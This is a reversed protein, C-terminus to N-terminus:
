ASKKATTKEYLQQSLHTNITEILVKKAVPKTLHATVGCKFSREIHSKVADATLAIIATPPRGERQEYERIALTADYGNMIPMQMDMLVVDFHSQKFRELAAMGDKVVELHVQKSKLYVKILDINDDTDEVLLINPVVTLVAEEVNYAPVGHSIHEFLEIIKIRMLPIAMFHDIGIRRLTMYDHSDLTDFHVFAFISSHGSEKMEQIFSKLTDMDCFATSFLYLRESSSEAGTQNLQSPESVWTPVLNLQSFAELTIRAQIPDCECVFIDPTRGLDLKFKSNRDVARAMPVVVDFCTGNGVRTHCSIKGKMIDLFQKVLFLGIGARGYYNSKDSTKGEVSDFLTELNPSSIGMGTDIVQIKLTSGLDKSYVEDVQVEIFGRETYKIANSILNLLIQSLREGDGLFRDTLTKIRVYFDLGKRVTLPTVYDCIKKVEYQLSFEKVAVDLENAGIKAIDLLGNLMIGLNTGSRYISQIMSRQESQLSHHSLVDSLGLIVNLPTRLEHSMQTLFRSKMKNISDAFEKAKLLNRESEVRESIDHIQLLVHSKMDFTIETASIETEFMAGSKHRFTLGEIKSRESPVVRNLFLEFREREHQFFVNIHTQLLEEPTFGSIESARSNSDVIRWDPSSLVIISDDSMEFIKRFKEESNKQKTIDHRISIYRVIKNNRQIPYITTDVWYFSGDKARNKIEGKWVMSSSITQWLNEWFGKSHQGSNIVAHTKGLLEQETYGSIACFRSNVEIICGKSDTIGVIDSADIAARLDQVHSELGELQIQIDKPDRESM